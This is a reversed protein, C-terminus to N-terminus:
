KRSSFMYFKTKRFPLRITNYLRLTLNLAENKWLIDNIEQHIVNFYQWVFKFNTDVFKGTTSRKVVSEMGSAVYKGSKDSSQKEANIFKDVINNRPPKTTFQRAIAEPKAKLTRNGILMILATAANKPTLNKEKSLGIM